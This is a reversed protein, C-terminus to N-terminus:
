LSRIHRCFQKVQHEIFTNQPIVVANIASAVQKWSICCVDNHLSPDKPKKRQKTLFIVGWEKKDNDSKKRAVDVYNKLQEGHENSNIKVEIVLTFPGSIEIDLRCNNTDNLQASEVRTRYKLNTSEPKPLLNQAQFPIDKKSVLWKLLGYLFINDQGHSGNCDLLWSLIYSNRIEDHGVRAVEWANIGYGYKNRDHLASKFQFIFDNFDNVKIEPRLRFKSNIMKRESYLKDLQRFFIRWRDVGILAADLESCFRAWKLSNPMIEGIYSGREFTNREHNSLSM